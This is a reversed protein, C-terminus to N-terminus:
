PEEEEQKFRRRCIVFGILGASILWIGTPPPVPAAMGLAAAQEEKGSGDSSPDIGMAMRNFDYPPDPPLYLNRGTAARETDLSGGSRAQEHLTKLVKAAAAALSREADSHDVSTTQQKPPPTPGASAPHITLLLYVTLVAAAFAKGMISNRGNTTTEL